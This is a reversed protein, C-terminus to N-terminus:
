TLCLLPNMLSPLHPIDYSMSDTNCICMHAQMDKSYIQFPVSVLMSLAVAFLYM